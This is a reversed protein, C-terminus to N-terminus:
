IQLLCAGLRDSQDLLLCEALPDSLIQEDGVAKPVAFKKKKRPERVGRCAWGPERSAHASEFPSGTSARM